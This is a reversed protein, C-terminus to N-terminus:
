MALGRGAVGRHGRVDIRVRRMEIGFWVLTEIQDSLIDM